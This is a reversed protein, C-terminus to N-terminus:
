TKNSKSKIRCMRFPLDFLLDRLKDGLRIANCDFSPRGNKIGCRTKIIAWLSWKKSYYEMIKRETAVNNSHSLLQLIEKHYCEHVTTRGFELTGYLMLCFM